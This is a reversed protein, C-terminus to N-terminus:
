ARGVAGGRKGTGPPLSVPVASIKMGCASETQDETVFEAEIVAAPASFGSQSRTFFSIGAAHSEGHICATRGSEGFEPAVPESGHVRIGGSGDGCAKQKKGSTEQPDVRSEAFEAGFKQIPVACDDGTIGPHFTKWKGAIGAIRFQVPCVSRFQWGAFVPDPEMQGVAIKVREPSRIVTVSAAAPIKGGSASIVCGVPINLFKDCFLRKAEATKGTIKVPRSRMMGDRKANANKQPVKKMESTAKKLIQQIILIVPGSGTRFCCIM